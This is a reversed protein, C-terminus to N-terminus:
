HASALTLAFRPEDSVFLDHLSLRAARLLQELEDPVFKRSIETLIVEDPAFSFTRGCAGLRVTQARTSILRMEIRGLGRQYRADHVFGDRQFDGDLERNIANLLNLNFAATLGASDNYAAHLVREDKVLDAGMLLFDSPGMAARIGRLFESLDPDPFNGITGGLFVFLAPAEHNRLHTVGLMYDGVLAHVDLWPYEGTLTTAAAALMEPCVDVPVYRPTQGLASCADLLRRTKRSSGSGLEIITKPAVSAIVRSAVDQLLGDEARSPYYEETLCIREFLLSGEHDYFYKCPLTKPRASLGQAVEEAITQPVRDAQLRDVIIRGEPRGQRQAGAQKM